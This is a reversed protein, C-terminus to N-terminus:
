RNAYIQQFQLPNPSYHILSVFPLMLWSRPPSQHNGAPNPCLHGSNIISPFQRQPPFSTALMRTRIAGGSTFQMPSLLAQCGPAVFEQQLSTSHKSSTCLLPCQCGPAVFTETSPAEATPLQHLLQIQAAPFVPM